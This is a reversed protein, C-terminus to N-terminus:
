ASRSHLTFKWPIDIDDDAQEGVVVRTVQVVQEQFKEVLALGRSDIKSDETEVLHTSTLSVLGSTSVVQSYYTEISASCM